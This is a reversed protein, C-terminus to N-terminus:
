EDTAEKNWEGMAELLTPHSKTEYKCAHCHLYIGVKDTRQCVQKEGCKPCKQAEHLFQEYEKM